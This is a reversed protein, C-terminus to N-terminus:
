VSEKVLLSLDVAAISKSLAGISIFHVGLQALTLLRQEDIGGSVEIVAPYTEQLSMVAEIMSDDFNDLMIRTVHLAQAEMFEELNQVEVIIPKTVDLERAAAVALTISGLAEIHNEKILFADYLGMRHNSGGGCRVAYKSAMRLGPITKRTDLIQCPLNAIIDVYSKTKSAIASLTQLFNLATREATLIGRLPGEISAWIRPSDQVSGEEVQWSLTIREDVQRFVENVWAQGCVVAAQRAIIEAHGWQDQPILSATIDGSQIDENLAAKVQDLINM